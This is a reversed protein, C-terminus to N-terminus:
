REVVWVAKKLNRRKESVRVEEGGVKKKVHQQKHKLAKIQGQFMDYLNWCSGLVMSHRSSNLKVRCAALLAGM